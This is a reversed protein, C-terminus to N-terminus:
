RLNKWPVNELFEGRLVFGKSKLTESCHSVIEVSLSSLYLMAGIFDCVM